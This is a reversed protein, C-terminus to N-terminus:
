VSQQFNDKLIKQQLDFIRNGAIIVKNKLESAGFYVWVIECGGVHKLLPRKKKKISHQNELAM